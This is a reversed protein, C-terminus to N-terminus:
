HKLVFSLKQKRAITYWPAHALPINNAMAYENICKIVLLTYQGKEVSYEMQFERVTIAFDPIPVKLVRSNAVPFALNDITIKGKKRQEHHKYILEAKDLPVASLCFGGAKKILHIAPNASKIALTYYNEFIHGTLDVPFMDFRGADQVSLLFVPRPKIYYVFLDHLRKGEKPHYRLKRKAAYVLHNMLIAYLYPAQSRAATIKYFYVQKEGIHFTDQQEIHLVGKKKGHGDLIFVKAKKEKPIYNAFYITLILDDEISAIVAVSDNVVAGNYSYVLRYADLAATLGVPLTERSNIFKRWAKKLM